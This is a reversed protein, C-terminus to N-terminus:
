FRNLEAPLQLSLNINLSGRAPEGGRVTNEMRGFFMIAAITFMFVFLGVIMYRFLKLTKRFNYKSAM